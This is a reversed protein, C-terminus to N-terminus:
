FRMWRIVRKESDEEEEEEREEEEGGDVCKGGRSFLDSLNPIKRDRSNKERNGSM